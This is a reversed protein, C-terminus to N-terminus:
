SGLLHQLEELFGVQGKLIKKKAADITFWGARDVEPFAQMKGSRPPWEISFTNSKIAKPDCDGEFAWAHVIKGSPQKLPALLKFEGVAAFGTEEEFERKASALPDGDPDFEGKPISWSGLDKKAWFPGGPHVLFVEFVREQSRYMLLGASTKPM